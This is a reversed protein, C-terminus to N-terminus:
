VCFDNSTEAYLPCVILIRSVPESSEDSCVDNTTSSKASVTCYRLAKPGKHDGSILFAKLCRQRSTACAGRGAIGRNTPRMKSNAAVPFLAGFFRPM